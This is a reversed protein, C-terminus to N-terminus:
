KGPIVPSILNMVVPWCAPADKNRRAGKQNILDPQDFVAHHFLALSLDPM